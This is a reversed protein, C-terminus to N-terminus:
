PKTCDPCIDPGPTQTIELAVRAYTPMNIHALDEPLLKLGARSALENGADDEIFIRASYLQSNELLSQCKPCQIYPTGFWISDAAYPLIRYEKTTTKEVGRTAYELHFSYGCSLRTHDYGDTNPYDSSGYPVNDDM